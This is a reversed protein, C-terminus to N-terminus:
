SKLQCRGPAALGINQGKFNLRFPFIDHGQRVAYDAVSELWTAGIPPYFPEDIVCCPFLIFGCGFKAAADIIQANCGHAHMGILLDFEQAMAEDFERNIHRVRANNPTRIRQGTSIDKFKDPLSQPAPDIVATEWGSEQLLYALLGKGGGIDAARCPEFHDTLWRHLLQFRFKKMKRLERPAPPYLALPHPDIAPPTAPYQLNGEAIRQLREFLEQGYEQDHKSM